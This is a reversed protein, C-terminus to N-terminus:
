GLGGRVGFYTYAIMQLDHFDVGQLRLIQPVKQSRQSLPNWEETLVMKRAWCRVALAKPEWISVAGYSTGGPSFIAGNHFLTYTVSRPRIM